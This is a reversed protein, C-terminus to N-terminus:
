RQRRQLCAEEREEQAAERRGSTPIDRDIQGLGAFLSCVSKDNESKKFTYHERPILTTGVGRFYPKRGM